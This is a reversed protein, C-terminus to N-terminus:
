GSLWVVCERTDGTYSPLTDGTEVDELRIGNAFPAANMWKPMM